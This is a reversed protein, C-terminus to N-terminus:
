CVRRVGPWWVWIDKPTFEDFIVVEPAVFGDRDDATPEGDFEAELFTPPLGRAEAVGSGPEGAAM